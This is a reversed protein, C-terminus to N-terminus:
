TNIAVQAAEMDQHSYIISRHVNPHEHEELNTNQTGESINESTPNRPWFASGSKLKQPYEMGSEVTAAGTQMGLLAFANGERLIRVIM